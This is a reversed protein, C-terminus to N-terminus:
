ARPVTREETIALAKLKRTRVLLTLCGGTWLLSLVLAPKTWGLPDEVTPSTYAVTPMSSEKTAVVAQSDKSFAANLSSTNPRSTPALLAYIIIFTIFLLTVMDAYSLLWADDPSRQIHVKQSSHIPLTQM